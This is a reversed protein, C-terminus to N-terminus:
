FALNVQGTKMCADREMPQPPDVTGKLHPGKSVCRSHRHLSQASSFVALSVASGGSPQLAHQSSQATHAQILLEQQLQAQQAEAASEQAATIAASEEEEDSSLSIELSLKLQQM